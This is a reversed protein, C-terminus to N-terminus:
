INFNSMKVATVVFFVTKQSIVASHLEQLFQVSRLFMDTGDEIHFVRLCRPECCPNVERRTPFLAEQLSTKM